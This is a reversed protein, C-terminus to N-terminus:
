KVLKFALASRTFKGKAARHLADTESAAMLKITLATAHWICKVKYEQM